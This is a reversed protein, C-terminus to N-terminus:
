NDQLESMYAFLAALGGTHIFCVRAGQPITGDAVLAPVAAFAKATYVPDLILGETQAMMEMAARSRPGVKGYGPALAGDWVVVDADRAKAADPDLQGLRKLIRQIRPVQLDAGRRVASGIVRAGSGAARLGALLGTHTAGSGSALTAGDFTATWAVGLSGTDPTSPDTASLPVSVNDGEVPNTAPATITATPDVNAVTVPASSCVTVSVSWTWATGAKASPSSTGRKRSDESRM